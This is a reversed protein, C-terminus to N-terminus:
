TEIDLLSRDLEQQARIVSANAKYAVLAQKQELYEAFFNINPFRPNLLWTCLKLAM